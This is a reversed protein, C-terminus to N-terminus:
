QRELRSTIAGSRLVMWSDALSQLHRFSPRRPPTTAPHAISHQRFPYGVTINKGNYDSASYIPSGVIYNTFMDPIDDIRWRWGAGYLQEAVTESTVWRLTGYRSVAYVKPDTTVKVLRYGPRYTVNGGITIGGLESDSITQVRRFDDSSFWSYFTNTNPFVYRKGDTAHWYLTPGSGKIITNATVANTAQPAGVVGVVMGLVLFASLIRGLPKQMSNFFLFPYLCFRLEKTLLVLTGGTKFM